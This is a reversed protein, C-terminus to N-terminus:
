SKPKSGRKVPRILFLPTSGDQLVKEAYSGFLWRGVTSRGSTSMAVMSYNGKEALEIVEDATGDAMSPKFISDVKVGKSKMTEEMKKLYAESRKKRQRLRKLAVENFYIGDVDKDWTHFLTVKLDLANAMYTVYKLILENKKHGGVPVLVKNLTKKYVDSKAGKARILMVPKATARLVKNAVDGLAWRRIGSRGQTSMVILDMRAKNAFDTIVEAPDGQLIKYDVKIEEDAKLKGREKANAAIRKVMEKMYCDYMYRSLHEEPTLVMLLTVSSRLRGAFGEVYWISVEALESGDLPVLIKDLMIVGGTKKRCEM